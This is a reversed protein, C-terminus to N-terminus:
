VNHCICQEVSGVINQKSQCYKLEKLAIKFCKNLHQLDKGSVIVKKQSYIECANSFSLTYNLLVEM